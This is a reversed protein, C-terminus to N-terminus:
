RIGERLRAVGVKRMPVGYASDEELDTVCSLPLLFYGHMTADKASLSNAAMESTVTVACVTVETPEWPLVRQDCFVACLKVGEIPREDLPYKSVIGIVTALGPGCEFVVRDYETMEEASTASYHIQDKRIIM